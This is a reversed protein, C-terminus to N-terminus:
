PTLESNFLWNPYRLQVELGPQTDILIFALCSIRVLPQLCQLLERSDGQHRAANSRNGVVLQSTKHAAESEGLLFQVCRQGARMTGVAGAALGSAGALATSSMSSLSSSVEYGIPGLRQQGVQLVRGRLAVQLQEYRADRVKTSM